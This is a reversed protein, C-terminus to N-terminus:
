KIIILLLLITVPCLFTARVQKADAEFLVNLLHKAGVRNEIYFIM